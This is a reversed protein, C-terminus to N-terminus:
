FQKVLWFGLAVLAIGILVSAFAYLILHLVNGSQLMQLSKNAFASFTTFGGCFGATLMLCWSSAQWGMKAFHGLLVGMLLCGALNVLLTDLPFSHHCSGKLLTSVYYRLAGGCFSGVGVLLLSKTM